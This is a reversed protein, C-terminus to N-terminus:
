NQISNPDYYWITRSAVNNLYLKIDIPDLRAPPGYEFGDGTDWTENLANINKILANTAVTGQQLSWRRQFTTVFWTQMAEIFGYIKDTPANIKTNLLKSLEHQNPLNWHIKSINNDFFLIYDWWIESSTNNEGSTFKSLSANLDFFATTGTTNWLLYQTQLYNLYPNNVLGGPRNVLDKVNDWTAKKRAEPDLMLQTYDIMAEQMPKTSITSSYTIGPTQVFHIGDADIFVAVQNGNAGSYLTTSQSKDEMWAIDNYRSTHTDPNSATEKRDILDILPQLNNPDPRTYQPLNYPLTTASRLGVGQASTVYRYLYYSFSAKISNADSNLTVLGLDGSQESNTVSKIEHIKERLAGEFGLTPDNINKIVTELETKNFNDLKIEDKLAKDKIESKFPVVIQRAWIPGQNKMWVQAIKNQQNSLLGNITSAPDILYDDGDRKLNDDKTKAVKFPLAIDSVNKTNANNIVNELATYAQEIDNEKQHSLAVIWVKSGYAGTKIYGNDGKLKQGAKVKEFIDSLWITIETTNYYQYNHYNNGVYYQNVITNAKNKLLRDFYRQYSGTQGDGGQNPDKLFNKWQTEWKRGYKARLSDQINKIENEVSQKAFQYDEAFTNNTKLISLSIYDVIDKYLTQGIGTDTNDLLYKYMDSTTKNREDNIPGNWDFVVRTTQATTGCAVATVATSTSLTFAALLTLLNRM